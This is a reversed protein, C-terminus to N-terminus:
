SNRRKCLTVCTGADNYRVWTMYHRMLLLGRGSSRDLNEDRLPDPVAEPRFGPGEDEVELLVCQESVQSRVRVEKTADYRHGHKIANVIAEEMALRVAFADKRSFGARELAEIVPGIVSEIEECVRLTRRDWVGCCAHEAQHPCVEHVNRSSM